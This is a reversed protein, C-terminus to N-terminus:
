HGPSIFGQTTTVAAVAGCSSYCSDYQQLYYQFSCKIYQQRWLLNMCFDVAEPPWVTLNSPTLM